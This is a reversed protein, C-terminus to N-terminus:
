AHLQPTTFLFPLRLRLLIPNNAVFADLQHKARVAYRRMYNHTTFLFLMSTDATSNITQACIITTPNHVSFAYFHRNTLLLTQAYLTGVCIITPNHVSFAYLHRATSNITQACIITITTSNHVSFVYFHRTTLLRTSYLPTMTNNPQSCFPM